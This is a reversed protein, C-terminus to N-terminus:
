AVLRVACLLTSQGMADPPVPINFVFVFFVPVVRFM